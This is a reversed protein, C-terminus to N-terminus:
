VDPKVNPKWPYCAPKIHKVVSKIVETRRLALSLVIIKMELIEKKKLETRLRDTEYM